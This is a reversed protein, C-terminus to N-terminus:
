SAEDVELAWTCGFAQVNLVYPGAPKSLLQEGEDPIARVLDPFGAQGAPQNEPQVWAFFIGAANEGTLQLNYRLKVTGGSLRFSATRQSDAGSATFVSTWQADPAVEPTPAFLEAPVPVSAQATAQAQPQASPSSSGSPGVSISKVLLFGVILVAVGVLATRLVAAM